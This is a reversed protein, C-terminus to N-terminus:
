DYTEEYLHLVEAIGDLIVTGVYEFDRPTSGGTPVLVFKRMETPNTIICTYWIVPEDNQEAVHIVKAGTPMAVQQVTGVVQLRQKWIVPDPTSM